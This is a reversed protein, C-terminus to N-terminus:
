QDIKVLKNQTLEYTKIIHYRIHEKELCDITGPFYTIIYDSSKLSQVFADDCITNESEKLVEVNRLIYPTTEVAYYNYYVGRLVPNIKPHVPHLEFLDIIPQRNNAHPSWEFCLRSNYSMAFHFTVLMSLIGACGYTILQLRQIPFTLESIWYCSAFMAPVWWQLATRGNLFPTKFLLHFFISFLLLAVLPMCAVFGPSIKKHRTFKFCYFGTVILILAFSIYALGNTWSQDLQIYISGNWVTAFVSGILDTDGGYGLDKGYYRIFLLDAITFLIILIFLLAITRVKKSPVINKSKREQFLFLIFTSFIAVISYFYSLNSAVTLATLIVITLWVRFEFSKNCAKILLFLTWAQFTLALGYGRALSFFDLLYPNFVIICYLLLQLPKSKITSSLHFIAHAFFPFALISHIRLYVPSDGFLVDFLKMFFSNLWHTNASGAMARYYNTKILHFSYAEDHTIDMDFAHKWILIWLVLLSLGHFIAMPDRWLVRNNKEALQVTFSFYSFIM